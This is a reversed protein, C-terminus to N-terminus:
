IGTKVAIWDRNAAVETYVGPYGKRACGMGWSVIGALRGNIAVPGGSDGQCTDRGGEPIAACIQGKPIGNFDKYAEGCVKKSVIPVQVTMLVESTSGGERTAGWGTLVSNSGEVAVEDQEYMPIPQRTADLKLPSKLKIVAIDNEPQGYMNTKFQEHRIINAVKSLSGGKSMYKSGTRIDIMNDPYIFVCHGATMVWDASIVIGGCFGFGSVQLSAQYPIDKIEVPSGGVIRGTPTFPNLRQM